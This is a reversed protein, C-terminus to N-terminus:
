RSRTSAQRRKFRQHQFDHLFAFVLKALLSAMRGGIALDVADNILMDVALTVPSDETTGFHVSDAVLLDGLFIRHATCRHVVGYSFM